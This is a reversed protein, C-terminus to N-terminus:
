MMTEVAPYIGREILAQHTGVPHATLNSADQARTEQAEGSDQVLLSPM